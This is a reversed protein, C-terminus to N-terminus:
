LELRNGTSSAGSLMIYNFGTNPLSGFWAKYDHALDRHMQIWTDLTNVGTVNYVVANSSNSPIFGSTAAIYYYMSRGDLLHIRLYTYDNVGPTFAQLRWMVDLYTERSGNLSRGGFFQSESFTQGNVLTLNAAKSGAYSTDTVTLSLPQNWPYGWAHISQGVNLQDEYSGGNVAAANLRTTDILVTARSGPGTTATFISIHDLHLEALNTYYSSADVWPNRRFFVWDDETNYNDADIMLIYTSNSYPRVGGGYGILYYINFYHQSSGTGNYFGINVYTYTGIGPNQYDLYWWLSVNGQNQATIRPYYYADVQAISSNGTSAATLNACYTGTYATTSQRVFGADRTRFVWDSSGEFNGNRTAGGIWVYANSENILHLDDIFVRTYQTTWGKTETRFRIRNVVFSSTLSPFTSIAEFDASVNRRFQNWQQSPADLFYYGSTSTNVNTTSGNLFYYLYYNTFGDNFRLYVRAFDHNVAPDPNQDVYWSFTLNLDVADASFGGQYMYTYDSMGPTQSRVQMGASQSSENVPWPAQAYWGYADGSEYVGWYTPTYSNVWTEFDPNGLWNATYNAVGLDPGPTSPEGGQAVSAAGFPSAAGTVAAGAALTTTDAPRGPIVPLVPLAILSLILFCVILRRM